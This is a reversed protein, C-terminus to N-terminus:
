KKLCEVVVNKLYTHVMNLKEIDELPVWVPEYIGNNRTLEPAASAIKLPANTNAVGLFTLYKFHEEKVDNKFIGIDELVFDKILKVKEKELGIEEHIERYMTDIFNKDDKEVGGGPFVYYIDINQKTRKILALKEEDKNLLICRCRTADSKENYPKAFKSIINKFLLNEM